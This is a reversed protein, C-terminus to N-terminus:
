SGQITGRSIVHIQDQGGAHVSKTVGIKYSTTELMLGEPFVLEQFQGIATNSGTVAAFLVERFKYWTTGGDISLFFRVVMASNATVSAQASIAQLSSVRTANSDGTQLTNVTGSGDGATNAASVTLVAAVGAIGFIPNTNKAM